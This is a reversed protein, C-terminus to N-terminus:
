EKNPQHNEEWELKHENDWEEWYEATATEGKARKIFVRLNDEIKKQTLWYGDRAIMENM